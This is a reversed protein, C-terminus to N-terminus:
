AKIETIAFGYEAKFHKANRKFMDTRHGKVDEVIAGHSFSCTVADWPEVSRKSYVFDAIYHGVVIGGYTHLPIKVQRKLAFIKGAKQLAKLLPWRRKEADSDWKGDADYSVNNGHKNRRKPSMAALVTECRKIARRRAAREEGPAAELLEVLDAKQQAQEAKIAAALAKQGKTKPKTM